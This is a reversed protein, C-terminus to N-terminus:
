YKIKKKIWDIYLNLHEIASENVRRTVDDDSYVPDISGVAFAEEGLVSPTDDEKKWGWINIKFGCFKKTNAIIKDNMDNYKTNIPDNDFYELPNIAEAHTQPIKYICLDGDFPKKGYASLKCFVIKFHNKSIQYVNEIIESCNEWKLGTRYDQKLLRMNEDSKLLNDNVKDILSKDFNNMKKDPDPVISEPFIKM